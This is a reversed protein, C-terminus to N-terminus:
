ILILKNMNKIKSLEYHKIKEKLKRQNEKREKLIDYSVEECDKFYEYWNNYDAINGYYDFHTYSIPKFNLEYAINDIIEDDSYDFFNFEKRIKNFESKPIYIRIESTNYKFENHLTKDEKSYYFVQYKIDLMENSIIEDIAESTFKFMKTMYDDQYANDCSTLISCIIDYEKDKLEKISTNTRQSILKFAQDLMGKNNYLEKFKCYQSISLNWDFSKEEVDQWTESKKDIDYLFQNVSISFYNKYKPKAITDIYKKM